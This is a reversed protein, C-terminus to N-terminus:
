GKARRRMASIIILVIMAMLASLGAVALVPIQSPDGTPPNVPVHKNTVNYGDITATYGEVADETITYVIEKGDKYKPMETFTWAFKGDTEKVELSKVKTGDALLNITISKPRIGDVDNADDWTKTGTIEITEPTHTNTITFKLTGEDTENAGIRESTIAGEYGEVELEEITYEIPVFENDVLQAEPLETFTYVWQDEATVNAETYPDGDALVTVLIQEPRIADQNEADEWVKEVMIETPAIYSVVPVEFSYSGDRTGDTSTYDLVASENTDYFDTTADERIELDYSLTIPNVNEIPVNITWTITQGSLTVEYPYVGEDNATGFSWKGDAYTVALDEGSLTMRFAGEADANLLTFDDTITDTVVGSNVMYRISNDIGAFMASVTDSNAKQASYDSNSRLWEKFPGVLELGGGTSSDYTIVACNYSANMESWLHGAKYIGKQLNDVHYQYYNPNINETDFTYTGDGNDIVMFPNGEMFTFGEYAGNPTFEYWFQYDTRNGYTGGAGFLEAGNTTEHKVVTGTPQGNAWTDPGAYLCPQDWETVGTLEADTSNYLEEYTAFWYINSKGTYDLVDVSYSMKNYGMTQSLAPAGNSALLYKNNTYYQSYITTPEHADNAWIYGKGDTFLIVYKHDDEVESDAQLWQNALDLGVHPGSGRGFANRFEDKSLSESITFAQQFYDKTDDGYETLGSYAGGSVYEIADNASGTFLVIGVKLTVTPNNTVINEFLGTASEIFQTGLDTSSSSDTVFVIDVENQYEASPLSLTVTTERNNWDLETPSATKSGSVDFESSSEAKARMGSFPLCSLVLAVAVLVLLWKRPKMNTEGKVVHIKYM